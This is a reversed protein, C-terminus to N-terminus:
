RGGTDSAPFSTEVWGEHCEYVSQGLVQQITMRLSKGTMRLALSSDPIELSIRRWGEIYAGLPVKLTCIKPSTHLSSSSLGYFLASLCIVPIFPCPILSRFFPHSRTPCISFDFGDSMQPHRHPSGILYKLDKVGGAAGNLIVFAVAGNLIVFAVAGNLIVFAVAGNLIVFAVAGNLIVFAVAGNLIVVRKRYVKKLVLSEWFHPDQVLKKSCCSSSLIICVISASHM